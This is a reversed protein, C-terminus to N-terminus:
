KPAKAPKGNATAPNGLTRGHRTGYVQPHGDTEVESRLPSHTLRWIRSLLQVVNPEPPLTAAFGTPKAVECVLEGNPVNGRRKLTILSGRLTGEQQIWRDLDNIVSPTIELLRGVSPSQTLVAIYGRWRPAQGCACPYCDNKWCPRTRGSWYHVYCGTCDDSVMLLTQTGKKSARLIKWASPLDGANPRNQFRTEEPKPDM